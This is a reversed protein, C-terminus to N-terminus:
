DAAPARLRKADPHRLAGLWIVTAWRGLSLGAFSVLGPIIGQRIGIMLLIAVLALRLIWGAWVLFLPSLQMDHRLRSVTWWRTLGNVIGVAGGILLWCLIM